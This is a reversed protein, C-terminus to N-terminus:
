KWVPVWCVAGTSDLRREWSNQAATSPGSGGITGLTAAAGGGLAVLAKDWRIDGNQPDLRLQGTGKTQIILGVNTEGEVDILPSNGSINGRMRIWNATAIQHDIEVQVQGNNTRFFISGTSNSDILDAYLTGATAIIDSSATLIGNIGVAGSFTHAGSHTPNNSWTVAASAITLADGSANGIVTNGSISVNGSFVHNGSHTPNNEWTVANPRITLADGAADGLTVADQLTVAGQVTVSGSFVHDGSHTPDNQWTVASSHITLADGAADGIVTDGLVSVNGSFVHNGSHTPNGSWTVAASAVTFGSAVTLLTSIEVTTFALSGPQTLTGTVNLDVVSLSQMAFAGSLPAHKTIGGQQVVILDALTVNATSPLQHIQLAM